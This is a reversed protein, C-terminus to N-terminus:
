VDLVRLRVQVPEGVALGEATRVAKKVPLSYARAKSDPFISTRWTTGGVTVEVRLSGFGRAFAGARELIEDSADDPVSVFTWHETRRADWEWLLAEFDFTM